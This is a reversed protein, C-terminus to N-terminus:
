AMMLPILFTVGAAAVLAGSARLLVAGRKSHQAFYGVLVGLLHIAATGSLFGLGYYIPDAMEPMEAGHVHGHFVAFFGFFLMAIIMPMRKDAAIALGLVVVSLGIGLEVSIVTIGQYGLYGGLAMVGVFTAPVAWIARGGIQASLIGVGIM